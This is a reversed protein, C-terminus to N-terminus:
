IPPYLSPKAATVRSACRVRGECETTLHIEIAQDAEEELARDVLAQEQGEREAQENRAAHLHGTRLRTHCVDRRFRARDCM